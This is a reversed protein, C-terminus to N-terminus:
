DLFVRSRVLDNLINPFEIGFLLLSNKARIRCLDVLLRLLVYALLDNVHLLKLFPQVFNSCNALFHSLWRVGVVYGVGLLGNALYTRM